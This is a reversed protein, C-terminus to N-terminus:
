ARELQRTWQKDCPHRLKGVERYVTLQVVHFVKMKRKKRPTQRELFFSTSCENCEFAKMEWWERDRCDAREDRVLLGAQRSKHRWDNSNSSSLAQAGAIHPCIHFTSKKEELLARFDSDRFKGDSKPFKLDFQIAISWGRSSPYRYLINLNTKSLMPSLAHRWPERGSPLTTARKTFAQMDAFTVVQKPGVRLKGTLGFCQRQYPWDAVAQKTFYKRAHALQCVSCVFTDMKQLQEPRMESEKKAQRFYDDRIRRKKFEQVAAEMAMGRCDCYKKIFGAAQKADRVDLEQMLVDNVKGTTSRQAKALLDSSYLDRCTTRFSVLDALELLEVIDLLLEPPLTFIRNNRNGPGRLVANSREEQYRNWASPRLKMPSYRGSNTCGPGCRYVPLTAIRVAVLHTIFVTGHAHVPDCKLDNYALYTIRILDGNGPLYFRIEPM